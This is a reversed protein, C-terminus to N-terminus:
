LAPEPRLSVGHDAEVQTIQERNRLAVGRPSGQCKREVITEREHANYSPFTM